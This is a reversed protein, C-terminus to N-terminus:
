HLGSSPMNDGIFSSLEQHLLQVGEWSIPPFNQKIYFRNKKTNLIQGLAKSQM